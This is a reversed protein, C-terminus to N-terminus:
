WSSEFVQKVRTADKASVLWHTLPNKTTFGSPAPYVQLGSNRLATLLSDLLSETVHMLDPILYTLSQLPVFNPPPLTDM